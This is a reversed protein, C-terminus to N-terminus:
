NSISSHSKLQSVIRKWEREFQRANMKQIQKKYEEILLVMERDTLQKMGKKEGNKIPQEFFLSLFLFVVDKEASAKSIGM